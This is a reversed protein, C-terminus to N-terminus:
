SRAAAPSPPSNRAMREIRADNAKRRAIWLYLGSALVVITLLDLLVWIIKLPIGGYDGFHLPRSLELLNLYWPPHAVATVDGSGADVLVPTFLHGTLPTSGKTWIVYHHSTAYRNGPYSISVVENGPIAGAAATVAADMSTHQSPPADNRYSAILESVETAQWLGYLPTALENIVGTVGVVSAWVLTVAGLLNHLDLWKLRASRQKRVTGFSLKKMFPGYLVIGSIIAIVFLLGMFGLFLQGPLGAFMDVHLALMLGLFTFQEQAVTDGDQLLAGTHADFRMYHHQKPDSAHSPSMGVYVLPEHDDMYVYEVVEGPYQQRASQVIGDLSTRPTGQAVVAYPKGDDLVHELEEHFVLPLGTICIVLLFLTCVLSSWKHVWYWSKLSAPAMM